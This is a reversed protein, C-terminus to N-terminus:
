ATVYEAFVSLLYMCFEVFVNQKKSNVIEDFNKGVLVKVPKADWDEPVEESM